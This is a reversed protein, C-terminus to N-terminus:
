GEQVPELKREDALIRHPTACRLCVGIKKEWEIKFKSSGCKTCSLQNACRLRSSENCWWDLLSTMREEFYTFAEKLFAAILWILLLVIFIPVIVWTMVAWFWRWTRLIHRRM